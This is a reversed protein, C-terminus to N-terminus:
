TRRSGPRDSRPIPTDRDPFAAHLEWIQPLSVVPVKFIDDITALEPKGNEDLEWVVNSWVALYMACFEGFSMLHSEVDSTSFQAECEMVPRRLKAPFHLLNADWYRLGQEDTNLSLGPRGQLGDAPYALQFGRDFCPDQLVRVRRDKKLEALPDKGAARLDDM